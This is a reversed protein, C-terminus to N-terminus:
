SLSPANVNGKTKTLKVVNDVAGTSCGSGAPKNNLKVCDNFNVFAGNAYQTKKQANSKKTSKFSGDRNIGPLANADYAGVSGSGATTENLSAQYWNEISSPDINRKKLNNKSIILFDSLKNEPYQDKLDLSAYHKIDDNEVDTYDWGNAIKNSDKFIAFHTYGDGLGEGIVPVDLNNIDVPMEKKIPEMSLAGTFAGSSAAGTTEELDNLDRIDRTKRHDLERARLDKLKQTIADKDFVKKPKEPDYINKKIMDLDRQLESDSEQINGLAKVVNKDKDYLSLLEQRLADDIKILDYGNEWDTPGVGVKLMTINDNVYNSIVDADIDFNKDYEFEPEGNEDKGVYRRTVSAYESFEDRNIDGYYFLFLEGKHSKLIAIENNYAIVELSETEPTKASSVQDKENWPARPDNESGMPYNSAETEIEKESGNNKLLSSLENELASIAEESSGFKKSLQYVGNKSIIMNKSMLDDCIEEFTLGNDVFFQPFEESKRYLFKIFDKTKQKLDTDNEMLSKGFKGQASSPISTNPKTINFKDESLNEIDKGSFEKKFTKDVSNMNENIRNAFIRNYQEKTIKIKKNQKTEVVRKIGLRIAQEETIKIKKM